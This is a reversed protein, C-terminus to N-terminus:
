LLLWCAVLVVGADEQVTGGGRYVFQLLQLGLEHEGGGVGCTSPCSSGCGGLGFGFQQGIGFPPQSLM